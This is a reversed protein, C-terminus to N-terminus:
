LIIEIELRGNRMKTGKGNLSPLTVAPLPVDTDGAVEMSASLKPALLSHLEGHHRGEEREDLCERCTQMLHVRKASMTLDWSNSPITLTMVLFLVVVLHRELVTGILTSLKLVLLLRDGGDRGEVVELSTILLIMQHVKDAARASSMTKIIALRIREVPFLPVSLKSNVVMATLVSLSPALLM